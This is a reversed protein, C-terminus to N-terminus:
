LHDDDALLELETKFVGIRFVKELQQVLYVWSQRGIKIDKGLQSNDELGLMDQLANGTIDDMFAIAMSKPLHVELQVLRDLEPKVM